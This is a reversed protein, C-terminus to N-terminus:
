AAERQAALFQEVAKRAETQTEFCGLQIQVGDVSPRALYPRKLPYVKGRVKVSRRYVVGSNM